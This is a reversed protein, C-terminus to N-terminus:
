LILNIRIVMNAPRAWPFYCNSCVTIVGCRKFRDKFSGGGDVNKDKVLMRKPVCPALLRLEPSLGRDRTDILEGREHAPDAIVVLLLVFVLFLAFFAIARNAWRRLLHM